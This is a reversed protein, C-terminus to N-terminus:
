DKVPQLTASANFAAENCGALATPNSCYLPDNIGPFSASKKNRLGLVNFTRAVNTEPTM